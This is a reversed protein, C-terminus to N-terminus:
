GLVEKETMSSSEQLFSLGVESLEKYHRLVVKEGRVQILANRRNSFAPVNGEIYHCCSKAEVVHWSSFFYIVIGNKLIADDEELSTPFRSLYDDCIEGLAILAKKENKVNIPLNLERISRFSGSFQAQIFYFDVEDLAIIRLLCMLLKSSDGDGSSM